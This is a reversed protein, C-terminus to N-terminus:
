WFRNESGAPRQADPIERAAEVRAGAIEVPAPIRETEITLNEVSGQMQFAAQELNELEGRLQLSDVVLVGAASDVVAFRERLTEFSLLWSFLQDIEIRASLSRIELFREDEGWVIGASLNSLASNGFILSLNEASLLDGEWKLEGQAIGPPLTDEASPELSLREINIQFVEPVESQFGLALDIRSRLLEPHASFDFLEAVKGPEFRTLRLNARNRLNEPDIWGNLSIDGFGSSASIDATLRDPPFNVEGDIKEFVLPPGNGRLLRVEGSRVSISLNPLRKALGEMSSKLTARGKELSFPEAEKEPPADPFSALAVPAELEIRRIAVNGSLLPLIRPFVAISEAEIDAGEPVSISVRGATVRPRPFLSVGLTEAEVKGNLRQSLAALARSRIADMDVVYPLLLILLALLALLAGAGGVVWILWRRYRIM